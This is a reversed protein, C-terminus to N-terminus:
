TILGNEAKIINRCKIMGYKMSITGRKNDEKSYFLVWVAKFLENERESDWSPMRRWDSGWRGGVVQFFETNFARVMGACVSAIEQVQAFGINITLHQGTRPLELAVANKGQIYGSSHAICHRLECIQEFYKLHTKLPSHKLDVGIFKDALQIINKADSLATREFAGRAVDDVGHWLVSGFNVSQDASKKQALPCIRLIGSFLDRIYDETASIIGIILLPGMVPYTALTSQNGAQLLESLSSYFRDIPSSASPLSARVCSAIDNIGTSGLQENICQHWSNVCYVGGCIVHHTKGM